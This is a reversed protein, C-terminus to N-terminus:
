MFVVYVVFSGYKAHDAKLVKYCKKIEESTKKENGLIDELEKYKDVYNLTSIPNFNNGDLNNATAMIAPNTMLLHDDMNANNGLTMSLREFNSVM